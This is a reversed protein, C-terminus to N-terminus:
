KRASSRKKMVHLKLVRKSATPPSRSLPQRGMPKKRPVQGKEIYHRTIKLMQKACHAIYDVLESRVAKYESYLSPVFEVENVFPRYKGDVVFGMDLRTILRPLRVGNPMVIPPLKKLIKQTAVKLKSLPAKLTGGEAEPHYFCKGKSEIACVSYKYENGLFFMRLEPQSTNNGFGQVMQQFVLGPYKNMAMKLFRSLLIRDSPGDFWEIDKGEQGYVPKGIFPGLRERAQFELVRELAVDHGLKRYEEATMTFTPLVDVKKEQLYSYYNIKSYIFEQYERPPYVNKAGLLCKKLNNYVKKGPSKDTHFAELIDYILMFNLDNSKLREKSIEKPYIFDVEVDKQKLANQIYAGIAVDTPLGYRGYKAQCAADRKVGLKEALAPQAWDFESCALLENKKLESKLNTLLIGIRVM